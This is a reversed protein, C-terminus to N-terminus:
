AGYDEEIPNDDQLDENTLPLDPQDPNSEIHRKVSEVTEYALLGLKILELKIGHLNAMIQQDTMDKYDCGLRIRKKSIDNLLNGSDAQLNLTIASVQEAIFKKKENTM